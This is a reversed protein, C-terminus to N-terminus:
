ADRVEQVDIMNGVYYGYCKAGTELDHGGALWDGHWRRVWEVALKVPYFLGPQTFDPYWFLYRGPQIPPLVEFGKYFM